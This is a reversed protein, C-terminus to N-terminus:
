KIIEIKDFDAFLSVEGRANIGNVRDVAIKHWKEDIEIGIYQRGLEKSAVATTGSGIFCDLVVDNENSSNIILNKIIQLPKITPHDYQNKDDINIPLQYVTKATDYTTNLKVGKRFYLCYESDTLYKSGCLPMANTKNWVIIDFLLGRKNVFENLYMPIQIKNCWIYINPVKLVRLLEDFINTNIGLDLGKHNLENMMNQIRKEKLMGGGEISHIEYPPDIIILDVSKDPIQKILEYSDGLHIKNLELM